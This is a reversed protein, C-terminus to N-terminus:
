IISTTWIQAEGHCAFLIYMLGHLKADAPVDSAAFWHEENIAGYGPWTTACLQEKPTQSADIRRTLNCATAGVLYFRLFVEELAGCSIPSHLKQLLVGSIPRSASDKVVEWPRQLPM